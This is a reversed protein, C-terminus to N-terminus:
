LVRDLMLPAPPVGLADALSHSLQTFLAQEEWFSDLGLHSVMSSIARQVHHGMYKTKYFDTGLLDSMDEFPLRDPKAFKMASVSQFYEQSNIEYRLHQQMLDLVQAAIDATAAYGLRRLQDVFWALNIEHVESLQTADRFAPVFLTRGADQRVVTDMLLQGDFVGRGSARMNSSIQMLGEAASVNCLFFLRLRAARLMLSEEFLAFRNLWQLFDEGTLLPNVSLLLDARLGSLGETASKTLKQYPAFVQAIDALTDLGYLEVLEPLHESLLPVLEDAAFNDTGKPLNDDIADIRDIVPFPLLWEPWAPTMALKLAELDAAM